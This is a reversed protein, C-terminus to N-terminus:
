EGLKGKYEEDLMENVKETDSKGTIKSVEAEVEEVCANFLQESMEAVEEPEAYEFWSFSRSAFYEVPEFQRAQVKRSYSRTVSQVPTLNNM